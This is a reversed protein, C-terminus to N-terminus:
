QNYEGAGFSRNPEKTHNRETNFKVNQELITGRIKNFQRETNEQLESFKRLTVIEFEKDPLNCIEMEKSNTGPFNNYEKSPTM